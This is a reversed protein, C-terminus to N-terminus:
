RLGSAPAADCTDGIRDRDSDRQDRNPTNICNDANDPIGDSDRDVSSQQQLQQGGHGGQGQDCVDGIGDRDVDRQDPNYKSPCNDTENPEDGVFDRDPDLLGLPYLECADGIGNRDSDSQDPNYKSPCNDLENRQDGITDRDLDPFPSPDCIDDISDGDSDRGTKATCTDTLEVDSITCLIDGKFSGDFGFPEDVDKVSFQVSSGCKGSILVDGVHYISSQNSLLPIAPFSLSSSSDETSYPCKVRANYIQLTFGELYIAGAGTAGVMSINAGGPGTSIDTSYLSATGGGIIDAHTGGPYGLARFNIQAASSPSSPSSILSTVSNEQEEPDDSNSCTITGKGTGELVLVPNINSSTTQGEARWYNSRTLYREDLTIIAATLTAGVALITTSLIFLSPLSLTPM